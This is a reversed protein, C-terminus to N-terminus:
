QAVVTQASIQFNKRDTVVVVVTRLNDAANPTVTTVMKYDPFNPITGYNQTTSVVSDYAELRLQELTANALTTMNTISQSIDQRNAVTSLTGGLALLGITLLFIAAVVEVLTFGDDRRRRTTCALVM